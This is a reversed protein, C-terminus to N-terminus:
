IWEEDSMDEPDRPFMDKLKDDLTYEKLLDERSQPEFM